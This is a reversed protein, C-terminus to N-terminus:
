LPPPQDTVPRFGFCYCYMTMQVTEADAALFLLEEQINTSWEDVVLRSWQKLQRISRENIVRKRQQLNAAAMPRFNRSWDALTREFLCLGRHIFEYREIHRGQFCFDDCSFTRDMLLAFTSSLLTTHILRLRHVVISGRLSFSCSIDFPEVRARGTYKLWTLALM